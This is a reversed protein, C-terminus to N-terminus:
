RNWPMLNAMNVPVSIGKMEAYMVEARKWDEETNIDCVRTPPLPIMATGPAILPRRAFLGAWGWYMAGADFLPDCCVGMAFRIEPAALAAMGRRLDDAKLMPATAYIVCAVQAKPTQDLVLRAVEQTGMSGDCSARMHVTAGQKTAHDAIEMDDTSVIVSDFLGVDQAVEISYDIIPRGHFLRVNKRHVRQSGGRAPIIAVNM